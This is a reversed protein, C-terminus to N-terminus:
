LPVLEQRRIVSLPTFGDPAWEGAVTVPEGGSLALLRWPDGLSRVLPLATGDDQRVLWHGGRQIPAVAGLLVPWSPTWPDAAIAAGYEALAQDVDAAALRPLLGPDGHRIGVLVRAGSPYFHLDADVATGLELSGDLQQGPPAFSLVLAVRGSDTGRLWVRRTALRDEIADRQAIVAWTDRVPPGALVDDRSTPYGVHARVVAALSTPLDDLRRHAQVLLRLLAYQELLRGHWGEGSALVAPLRRLRGAVGPAQADVMRAAILEIQAYGARDLGSLGTRIQDGLWADLEDLGASVRAQRQAVRKAAAGPDAPSRPPPKDDAESGGAAKEARASLWGQAFGAPAEAEPVQGDSWLFMLGLAHKCPFRRSPCSCSYAPGSLDIVTRYPTKGSGQCRGWLAPPDVRYGGDSWTGTAALRQGTAAQVPDPALASVREVGWRQTM